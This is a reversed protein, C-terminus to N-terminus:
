TRGHPKGSMEKLKRYMTTKGIGLLRATRTKDFGSIQLARLIAQRELRQLNLENSAFVEGSSRSAPGESRVADPFHTPLITQDVSNAVAHDVAAKLERVNGPWQYRCLADCAEGTLTYSRNDRELRSLFYRALLPVDQIHRRLPPLEVSLINLRYCLDARFAKSEILRDMRRSTTSILRVDGPATGGPEAQELVRMLQSQLPYHMESIENLLLTGGQAADMWLGHGPMGGAPQAPGAQGCLALALLPPSLSCCDVSVGPKRHRASLGHIAWAVLRKGSGPEGSILVACTLKAAQLVQVFVNQMEVSEGILGVDAVTQRAQAREFSGVRTEDLRRLLNHLAEQIMAETIGELEADLVDFAGARMLDVLARTGPLRRFFFLVQLNPRLTRWRRVAATLDDQFRAQVVLLADADSERLQAEVDGPLCHHPRFGEATRADAAIQKQISAYLDGTEAVVLLHHPRPTM